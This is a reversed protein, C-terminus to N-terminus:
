RNDGSGGIVNREKRDKLKLLNNQCIADLSFGLNTAADALYWQVDGLEKAIEKKDEESLVGNKDRLVKKLKGAVEGAENTLGLTSYVLGFEKNYIATTAAEKQYDDILM